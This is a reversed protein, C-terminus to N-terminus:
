QILVINSRVQNRRSDIEGLVVQISKENKTSPKNFYTYALHEGGRDIM